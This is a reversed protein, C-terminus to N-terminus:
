SYGPGNVVHGWGEKGSWRQKGEAKGAGEQQWEQKRLVGHVKIGRDKNKWTGRGANLM